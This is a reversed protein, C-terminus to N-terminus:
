NNCGFSTPFAVFSRFGQHCSPKPRRSSPKRHIALLRQNRKRIRASRFWTSQFPKVRQRRKHAEIDTVALFIHMYLEDLSAFPMNKGTPQLGLTM